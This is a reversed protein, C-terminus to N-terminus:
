KDEGPQKKNLEELAASEMTMLQNLLTVRRKKKIGRLEMQVKIAQDDLRLYIGSMESILWRRNLTLFLELAEKNEEFLGFSEADGLYDPIEEDPIGAKRM